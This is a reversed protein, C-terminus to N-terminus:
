FSWKIRTYGVYVSSPDGNLFLQGILDADLNNVISWMLFPNVFVGQNGPFAMASIGASVLPHFPYSMQVFASGEFPSLSRVDLNSSSTLEFNGNGLPASNYLVSGNLYLSNAFMYDGSITGMYTRVQDSDLPEFLTMEGKFGVNGINGAWGGGLALNNKMIGTLVQFDYNRQNWKYLFGATLAEVSDAMKVAIEYGGAYGIYKQFRIADSGPREEYDFDFFSYANFIDNPNWAMNIGWNVRQRGVQLSWTEEKWEAYARDIMTHIILNDSDVILWSGDFFDNNVDILEGYNPILTVYDGSFVRTRLEVRLQLKDSPFWKFNLRNHILNDVAVSDAGEPLNFTAMDKLYGSLSATRQKVEQGSVWHFATFVLLFIWNYKRM